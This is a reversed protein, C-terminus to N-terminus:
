KNIDKNFIQIITQYNQNIIQYLKQNKSQFHYTIERKHLLSKKSFKYRENAIETLDILEQIETQLLNITENMTDRSQFIKKDINPLDNLINQKNTSHQSIEKRLTMQLLVTFFKKKQSLEKIIM